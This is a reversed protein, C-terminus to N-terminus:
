ADISARYRRQRTAHSADAVALLRVMVQWRRGCGRCAALASAEFRTPGSSQEHALVGGCDPCSVSLCYGTM